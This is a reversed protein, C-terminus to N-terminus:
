LDQSALTTPSAKGSAKGRMTRGLSAIGLRHRFPLVLQDPPPPIHLEVQGMVPPRQESQLRPTIRHRYQHRPWGTLGFSRCTEARVREPGAMGNGHLTESAAQRGFTGSSRVRPTCPLTIPIQHNPQAPAPLQRLKPATRSRGIPSTASRDSGPDSATPPYIRRYNRLDVAQVTRALHHARPTHIASAM